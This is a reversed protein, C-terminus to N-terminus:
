EKTSHLNELRLQIPEFQQFAAHEVEKEGFVRELLGFYGNVERLQRQIDVFHTALRRSPRNLLPDLSLDVLSTAAKFLSGQKAIDWAHRVLSKTIGWRDERAVVEAIRLQAREIDRIADFQDGLTNASALRLEYKLLEARASSFRTRLASLESPIDDATKCRDLLLATLPPIPVLRSQMMSQLPKLQVAIQSELNRLLTRAVTYRRLGSLVPLSFEPSPLVDFGEEFFTGFFAAM